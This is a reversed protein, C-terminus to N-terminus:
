SWTPCACRWRTSPSTAGHCTSARHRRRLHGRAQAVRARLGRGPADHDRLGRRGQPLRHHRLAGGADVRRRGLGPGAARDRRAPRRDDPRHRVDVGRRVPSCPTACRDVWWICRRGAAAFRRALEETASSTPASGSPYRRPSCGGVTTRGRAEGQTSASPWSRGRCARPPRLLGGRCPPREGGAVAPAAPRGGHGRRGQRQDRLGRPDRGGCGQNLRARPTPAPRPGPWRAARSGSRRRGGRRRTGAAAPWRRRRGLLRTRSRSGSTGTVAARGAARQGRRGADGDQGVRVGGGGGGAGAGARGPPGVSVRPQVGSSRRRRRRTGPRRHRELALARGGRHGAEGGEEGILLRRGTPSPPAAAPRPPRAPARRAAGGAQGVRQGVVAVHGVVSATLGTATVATSAPRVRPVAQAREALQGASSRRGLHEVLGVHGDVHRREGLGPM